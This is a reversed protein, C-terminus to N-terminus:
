CKCYKIKKSGEVLKIAELNEQAVESTYDIYSVDNYGASKFIEMYEEPTILHITLGDIELFTKMLASYKDSSHMWDLNIVIGDNKLVRYAKKLLNVKDKIHFWSGKGIIYDFSREAFDREIDDCVKFETTGLSSQITKQRKNAIDIVCPEIDVGVGEISYNRALAVGHFLKSSLLM